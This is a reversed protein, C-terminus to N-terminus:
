DSNYHEIYLALHSFSLDDFRLFHYNIASHLLVSTIKSCSNHCKHNVNKIDEIIVGDMVRIIM